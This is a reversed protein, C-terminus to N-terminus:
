STARRDIAEVWQVAVAAVQILETRLCEPEHEAFAEAVEELLIGRFTSDGAAAATDVRHKFFAQLDTATVPLGPIWGVDPGTGDPHNQEGWKQDQRHREKRVEALVGATEDSM